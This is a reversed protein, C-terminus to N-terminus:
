RVASEIATTAEDLAKWRRCRECLSISPHAYGKPHVECEGDFAGDAEDLRSLMRRWEDQIEWADARGTIVRQRLESYGSMAGVERVVRIPHKLEYYRVMADAAEHPKMRLEEALEESLERIAAESSTAQEIATRQTTM